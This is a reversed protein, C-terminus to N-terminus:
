EYGEGSFGPEFWIRYLPVDKALVMAVQQLTTCPELSGAYLAPFPLDSLAPLDTSIVVRVTSM